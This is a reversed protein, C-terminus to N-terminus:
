FLQHFWIGPPSLVVASPTVGLYLRCMDCGGNSPRLMPQINFYPAPLAQRTEFSM